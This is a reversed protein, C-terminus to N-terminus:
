FIKVFFSSQHIRIGYISIIYYSSTYSLQMVGQYSINVNYILFIPYNKMFLKFRVLNVDKLYLCGAIQAVVSVKKKQLSCQYHSSDQLWSKGQVQLITNHKLILVQTSSYLVKIQRVHHLQFACQCLVFWFINVM